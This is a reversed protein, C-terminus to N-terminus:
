RFVYREFRGYADDDAFRAAHCRERDTRDLSIGPKQCDQAIAKSSDRTDGVDKSDKNSTRM